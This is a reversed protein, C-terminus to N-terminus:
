EFSINLFKLVCCNLIGEIFKKLINRWFKIDRKLIVEEIINILVGM